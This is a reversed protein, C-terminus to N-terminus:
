ASHLAEGAAVGLRISSLDLESTELRFNMLAAYNSPVSFFLPPRHREVVDYINRPSPSGPWFIATAGVALPFYLAHGLGYAFFLKAVSFFRDSEQINFINRAYQESAVAM